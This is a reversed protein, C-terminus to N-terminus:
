ILSIDSTEIIDLPCGGVLVHQGRQCSFHKSQRGFCYYGGVKPKQRKIDTITAYENHFPLIDLSRPLFLSFTKTLKDKGNDQTYTIRGMDSCYADCTWM